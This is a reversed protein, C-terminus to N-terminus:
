AGHTGPTAHLRCDVRRRAAFRKRRRTGRRAVQSNSGPAPTGRRAPIPHSEGSRDTSRSRHALCPACSRPPIGAGAGDELLSYLGPVLLPTRLTGAALGGIVARALSFCLVDGV